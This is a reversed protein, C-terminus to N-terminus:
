ADHSASHWASWEDGKIVDGIGRVNYWVELTFGGFAIFSKTGVAVEGSFPRFVGFSGDFCVDGYVVVKDFVEVNVM